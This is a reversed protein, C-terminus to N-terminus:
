SHWTSYGPLSYYSKLTVSVPGGGIPWTFDFYCDSPTCPTRERIGAGGLTYGTPVRRDGEAPIFDVRYKGWGSWGQHTVSVITPAGLVGVRAEVVNSSAGAGSSSVARLSVLYRGEPIYFNNPPIFPNSSYRGVKFYTLHGRTGLSGPYVNHWGSLDGGSLDTIRYQYNQIISGNDAGPIFEVTMEGFGGFAAEVTPAAPVGAINEATVSQGVMETLLGASAMVLPPRDLTTAEASGDPVAVSMSALLSGLVAIAIIKM